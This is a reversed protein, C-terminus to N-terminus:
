NHAFFLEPENIFTILLIHKWIVYINLIYTHVPNQMFYGVITSIGYFGVWICEIYKIYIFLSSKVNFLRCHNIYWLFLGIFDLIELSYLYNACMYMSKQIRIWNKFRDTQNMFPVWILTSRLPIAICTCRVSELDDFNSGWWRICNLTM